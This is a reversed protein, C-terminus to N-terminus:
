GWARNPQPVSAIVGAGHCFGGKHQRVSYFEMGAVPVAGEHTVRSELVKMQKKVAPWLHSSCYGFNVCAVLKQLCFVVVLVSVEVFMKLPTIQAGGAQSFM